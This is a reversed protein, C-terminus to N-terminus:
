LFVQFESNTSNKKPNINKVTQLDIKLTGKFEHNSSSYM